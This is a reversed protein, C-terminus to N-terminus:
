SVATGATSDGDAPHGSGNIIEMKRLTLEGPGNTSPMDRLVRDRLIYHLLYENLVAQHWEPSAKQVDDLDIEGHIMTAQRFAPDEFIREWDLGVFATLEIKIEFLDQETRAM